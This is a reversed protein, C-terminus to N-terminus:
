RVSSCMKVSLDPESYDRQDEHEVTDHTKTESENHMEVDCQMVWPKTLAAAKFTHNVSRKPNPVTLLLTYIVPSREGTIPYMYTM